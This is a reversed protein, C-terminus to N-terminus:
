SRLSLITVTGDMSALSHNAQNPDLEPHDSRIHTGRSEERALAASVAAAAITLLGKTQIMSVFETNMVPSSDRIKLNLQQLDQINEAATALGAADRTTGM